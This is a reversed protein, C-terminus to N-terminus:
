KIRAQLMETELHKDEERLPLVSLYSAIRVKIFNLDEHTIEVPAAHRLEQESLVLEGSESPLMIRHVLQIKRNVREPIGFGYNLHGGGAIVVMCKGAGAESSMFDTIGKAMVADRVAHALIIKELKKGQFSKHVRLKLRLLKEYQPNIDEVDSPISQREEVSLSGLGERAVKRVISDPANLGLIPARIQRAFKLIEAYDQLNTWREPGLKRSLEEVNRESGSWEDLTSRQETSFMELGVALALGRQHLGKMVDLQLKHHRAITHHEGLYIIRTQAMDDLAHDFPVPEGMLLDIIISQGKTQALCNTQTMMIILSAFITIRFFYIRDVVGSSGITLHSRLTM